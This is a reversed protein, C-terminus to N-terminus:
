YSPGSSRAFLFVFVLGLALLVMAIIYLIKKMVFYKRLEILAGMLQTVDSGQTTVINKFHGSATNLMLALIITVVSTVGYVVVNGLTGALLALAALVANFAGIIIEVIAVFKMASALVEIQMNAADDFEHERHVQLGQESMRLDDCPDRPPVVEAIQHSPHHGIRAEQEVFPQALARHAHHVPRVVHPETVRDRHLDQTRPVDRIGRTAFAEQALRAEGPLERMRVEDGHEVRALEVVTAEEHHALERAALRQLRDHRAPSDLGAAGDRQQALDAVAEGRRVREPDHVAIELRRVDHDLGVPAALAHSEEVEPDRRRGIALVPEGLLALDDARRVVHSGFLHRPLAGVRARIEVREPDEAELHDGAHAGEVARADVHDAVLELADRREDDLTRGDRAIGLEIPDEM